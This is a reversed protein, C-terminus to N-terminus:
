LFVRSMKNPAEQSVVLWIIPALSNPNWFFLPFTQPWDLTARPGTHDYATGRAANGWTSLFSSTQRTGKISEVEPLKSRWGRVSSGNRGWDKAVDTLTSEQHWVWQGEWTVHSLKRVPRARVWPSWTRGKPTLDLGAKRRVLDTQSPAGGHLGKRTGRWGHVSGAHMNWVTVHVKSLNSRKGHQPM